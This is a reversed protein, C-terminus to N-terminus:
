RRMIATDPTGAEALQIIAQHRLDHLLTGRIRCSTDFEAVGFAFKKAAEDPRRQNEGTSFVFHHQADSGLVEGRQRLRTLALVADGNLPITSSRYDEWPHRRSQRVNALGCSRWFM